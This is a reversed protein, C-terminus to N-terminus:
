VLTSGQGGIKDHIQKLSVLEKNRADVVAPNTEKALARGLRASETKICNQLSAQETNTLNLTM